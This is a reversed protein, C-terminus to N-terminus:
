DMAIWSCYEQAVREGKREGKLAGVKHQQTSTPVLAVVVAAACVINNFLTLCVSLCFLATCHLPHPVHLSLLHPVHIRTFAFISVYISYNKCPRVSCCCFYYYYFYNKDNATTTSSTGTWTALGPVYLNFGAVRVNQVSITPDDEFHLM